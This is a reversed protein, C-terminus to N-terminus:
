GSSDDRVTRVANIKPRRAGHVANPSHTAFSSGAGRSRDSMTSSIGVIHPSRRTDVGGDAVARWRMSRNARSCRWRLDTWSAGRQLGNSRRSPRHRKTLRLRGETAISAGYGASFYLRGSQLPVVDRCCQFACLSPLSHGWRVAAVITGVAGRDRCLGPAGFPNPIWRLRNSVISRKPAELGPRTFAGAKVVGSGVRLVAGHRELSARRRRRRLEPQRACRLWPPSSLDRHHPHGAESLSKELLDRQEEPFSQDEIAGAVYVAAEIASAKHHPSDPDDAKALNGGHFSAAAAIREGLNAASILSLRGGMCYGTTGVGGPKKEPLSELYDVFAGADRVVLDVTYGRMMGMIKEATEKTSLVTRMDVPDYPGNRYYFDPLLVVYGLNSLREGMQRMTERMGGADPFMIVAPWPGDGVPLSLAAPCIGDATEIEVSRQTM